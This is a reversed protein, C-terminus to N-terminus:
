KASWNVRGYIDALKAIKKALAKTNAKKAMRWGWNGTTTAPLNMRSKSDLGLFDQMPVIAIKAHSQYVLRIMEWAIDDVKEKGLYDLVLKQEKKSLSTFWGLSTDNDHTGTYAVCNENYNHPLYDNTKAWDNLDFAFQLVKMNPFGSDKVLKKVSDTMFGLDEAILDQKGIREEMKIFLDMNPGAEWHGELGTKAGAPISFYEDLGRFHDIRLVDFLQFSMWIRSIWWEYNTSRHYDWKYLPNGWVQGTESFDDPPCGAVAALTNEETIQFLEPHAWVDASDLSVYIPMDGVIKIGKENAYSKLATWQEFFTFQIFKQFEVDFYLETNYYDVSYQWRKRIDEPWTTWEEDKFFIHLAMFLAYDNLWWANDQIFKQYKENESIHSREYVKHLLAIRHDHLKDYDVRGDESDMNPIEKAKLLGAKVFPELDILYPNGAFASYAQYPSDAAQGWVTPGVPLIQWYTQKAEVLWDVFDYAEKSFCGIGYKSPLSPIALLVGASRNM